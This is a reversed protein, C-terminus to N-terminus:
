SWTASKRKRTKRADPTLAQCSNVASLLSLTLVAIRSCMAHVQCSPLAPPRLPCVGSGALLQFAPLNQFVIATIAFPQKPRAAPHRPPVSAESTRRGLLSGAAATWAGANLRRLVLFLLGASIAHLLLSTFHHGAPNTGYLEADLEHSLWTLPHWYLRTVSTFAFAVGAPTLGDSLPHSGVYLFDDLNIFQNQVAPATAVLVLLALLV